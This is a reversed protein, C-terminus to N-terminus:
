CLLDPASKHTLWHNLVANVQDPNLPKSIYDNMGVGICKERDGSMANATMAIIPIHQYTHGAAGQRILQTAQYGDMEPMQCDMLILTYPDQNNAALLTSLLQQGNEVISATLGMDDLLGEIVFQNVKNDEAVLIRHNKKHATVADVSSYNNTVASSLTPTNTSAKQENSLLYLKSLMTPTLPKLQYHGNHNNTNSVTDFFSSMIIIRPNNPHGGIFDRMTDTLDIENIYISTANKGSASLILQAQQLNSASLTAAGLQQLQKQLSRLHYPQNDIILCHENSLNLKTAYPTKETTLPLLLRISFCSGINEKSRVRIDGNMAQALQSAIALGLGTGGFKRTVSADAQQFAEFIGGVKDKAIGIGTDLVRITLLLQQTTLERTIVRVSILGHETFKTANSIINNIIQRVRGPDGKVLHQPLSSFSATYEIGKAQIRSAHIHITSTILELPDFTSHEFDLKGAEIKSFDLIDNLLVQLSEASHQALDVQQQQKSNLSSNSLQRIMGIIGNMPTRIEHSMNALFESKAKTSAEAINKAKTLDKTKQEVLKHLRTNVVLMVLLLFTAGFLINRMLVTDIISKSEIYDEIFFGDLTADKSTRGREKYIDAIHNFRNKNTHGLEILDPKIMSKTMEAEYQLSANSKNGTKNLDKLIYDIIEQPHDLAYKWGKLSARVFANVDEPHQKAFEESTFINDGYFDVGYNLPNIINIPINKEKYLFPQNTIYASMADTQDKVLAMNDFSHPVYNIDSEKVNLANLTSIILADDIDQQYMVRKGILDRPDRLGKESLSILVMPSHQFIPALLVVPSGNLRAAILSTDSVGFEARGSVVEDITTIQPDREKIHIHLGEDEFFGKLDAAYYGAFQFQHFWKLYLTYEKEPAAHEIKTAQAIPLTLVQLLLISTSILWLHWRRIHRRPPIISIAIM